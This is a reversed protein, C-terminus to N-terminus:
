RLSALQSGRSELNGDSQLSLELDRAVEKRM